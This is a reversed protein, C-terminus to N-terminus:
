GRQTLHLLPIKLEWPHLDINYRHKLYDAVSIKMKTVQGNEDKHKYDFM